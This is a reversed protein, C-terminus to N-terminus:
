DILGYERAVRALAARGRVGLKWQIRSRHWEVTRVSLVLHHAIERNTHGLALLSLIERERDTLDGAGEAVRAATREADNASVSTVALGVWDAAFQLFRGDLETYPEGPRRRMMVIHGIVKGRVRMPALLLSCIGHRSAYPGFEPRGAALVEPSTEPLRIVTRESIVTKTFGRDPRMRAGVLAELTAAVAPDPDALGLPHLWQGDDSLLSAIATDSSLRALADAALELVEWAALTESAVASSLKGIVAAQGRTPAEIPVEVQEQLPVRAMEM